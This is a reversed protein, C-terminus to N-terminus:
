RSCTIADIQGQQILQLKNQSNVLPVKSRGLGIYAEDYHLDSVGIYQIKVGNRLLQRVLKKTAIVSKPTCFVANIEEPPDIWQSQLMSKQAVLSEHYIDTERISEKVISVLREPDKETFVVIEPNGYALHPGISTVFTVINSILSIFLFLGGLLLAWNPLLVSLPTSETFWKWDILCSFLFLVIYVCIPITFPWFFEAMIHQFPQINQFWLWFGIVVLILLFLALGTKQISSFSKTVGQLVKILNSLFDNMLDPM